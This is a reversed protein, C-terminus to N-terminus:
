KPRDHDRERGGDWAHDGRERDHGREGEPRVAASASGEPAAPADEKKSCGLVILAAFALAVGKRM